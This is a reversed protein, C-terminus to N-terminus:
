GCGQRNLFEEERVFERLQKDRGALRMIILIKQRNHQEAAHAVPGSDYL